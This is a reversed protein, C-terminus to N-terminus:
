RGQVRTIGSFSIKENFRGDKKKLTLLGKFVWEFGEGRLGRWIASSIRMCKPSLFTVM